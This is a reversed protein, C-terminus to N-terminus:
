SYEKKVFRVVWASRMKSAAVRVVAYGTIVYSPAISLLTHLANFIATFILVFLLAEISSSFGWGLANALSKSAFDFFSPFLIWIVVYNAFTLVVIRVLAGLGVILTIFSAKSTFLGKYILAGIQMGAIMSIVALFKLFPGIPVFSGVFNLVFWYVFASVLSPVPGYLLFAVIVPIEALDFKLYPILPFPFSLPLLTLVAALAGFLASSSIVFTELKFSPKM